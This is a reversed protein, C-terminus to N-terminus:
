SLVYTKPMWTIKRQGKIQGKVSPVLSVSFFANAMDLASYQCFTYYKAVLLCLQCAPATSAVGSNQQSYNVTSVNMKSKM